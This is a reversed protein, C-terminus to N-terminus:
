GFSEHGLPPIDAMGPSGTCDGTQNAKGQHLPQDRGNDGCPLACKEKESGKKEKKKKLLFYIYPLHPSLLTWPFGLGKKM